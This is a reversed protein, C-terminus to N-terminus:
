RILAMVLMFLGFAWVYWVFLYLSRRRIYTLFYHIAAYGSVLAAIFGAALLLMEGSQIGVDLADKFQLAWAGFIIPLALLFSFRAAAERKIGLALGAAITSGSRSIGPAIAAAQALGILIGDKWGISEMERTRQAVKESFFLIGGTILLFISVLLPTGFLQEFLDNLLYGALAAPVSGVVLLWGLKGFPDDLNRDRLTKLVGLVIQGIDKRFYIVVAVLTGLHVTTDFTLGPADWNLLWPILVLHGSSSIPLFEAVGQLIGLIIAQLITM